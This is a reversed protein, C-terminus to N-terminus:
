KYVYKSAKELRPFWATKKDTKQIGDFVREGNYIHKKVLTHFLDYDEQTQFKFLATILPPPKTHNNYEPMGVWEEERPDILPFLNPQGTM